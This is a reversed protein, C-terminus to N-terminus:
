WLVTARLVGPAFQILAERGTRLLPRDLQQQLDFDLATQLWLTTDHGTLRYPYGWAATGRMFNFARRASWQANAVANKM